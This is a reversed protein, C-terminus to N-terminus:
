VNPLLYKTKIIQNLKSNFSKEIIVPIKNSYNQNIKKFDKKREELLFKIKYQSENNKKM